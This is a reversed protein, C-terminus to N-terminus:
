LRHRPPRISAIRQDPDIEASRAVAVLRAIMNELERVNGPWEEDRLADVLAPSPRVDPTPSVCGTGRAFERAMAPIDDRHDRLPPVILEVVALRYYLDMRFRGRRAEAALDRNTCAIM